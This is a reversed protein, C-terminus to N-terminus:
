FYDVVITSDGTNIKSIQSDSRYTSLSMDFALLLSDISSKKVDESSSIYKIAYTSGQAEGQILFVQEKNESQCSILLFVGVIASVLKKLGM